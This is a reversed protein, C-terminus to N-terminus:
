IVIGEPYIQLSEFQKSEHILIRLEEHLRIELTEEDIVSYSAVTVNLLKQFHTSTWNIEEDWTAILEEEQFVEILCQIAIRSGSSFLFQVDYRGLWIQQIEAGLIGELKLDNDFGYMDDELPRLNFASRHM